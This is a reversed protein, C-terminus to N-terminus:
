PAVASIIPVQWVCYQTEDLLTEIQDDFRARAEDPPIGLRAAATDAYGDRWAEWIAAFTRRPVRLTDVSVFDVAVDRVGLARLHGLAHRGIRMDIGDAEQMRRPIVDWFDDPDFRRAPFHIMGYDEALLHLRGGPRTLRLLEAIMREPHPVSQVVHRCVVLDFGGAPLGTDFLSRHEFRVRAADAQTRARARDLHGDLIDLGLLRAEPYLAALRATIEGTGCGGDLISLRGSLGHRELIRREQPWIAEAQAALNRVMSEDAMERAQPFLDSAM